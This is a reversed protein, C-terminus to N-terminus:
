EPEGGKVNNHLCNKTWMQTREIEKGVEVLLNKKKSERAQPEQSEVRSTTELM